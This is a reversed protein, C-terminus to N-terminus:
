CLYELFDAFTASVATSFFGWLFFGWGKGVYSQQKM